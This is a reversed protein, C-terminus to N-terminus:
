EELEERIVVLAEEVLATTEAVRAEPVLADAAAELPLLAAQLAGHLEAVQTEMEALREQLGQIYDACAQADEVIYYRQLEAEAQQAQELLREAEAELKEIRAAAYLVVPNEKNWRLLDVIKANMEPYTVINATM